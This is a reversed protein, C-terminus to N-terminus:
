LMANPMDLAPSAEITRLQYHPTQMNEQPSFLSIRAGLMLIALFHGCQRLQDLKSHESQLTPHLHSVDGLV